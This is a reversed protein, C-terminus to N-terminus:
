HDKRKLQLKPDESQQIDTREDRQRSNATIKICSWIILKQPPKHVQSIESTVDLHMNERIRMHVSPNPRVSKTLLSRLSGSRTKLCQSSTSDKVISVLVTPWPYNLHIHQKRGQFITITHLTMEWPNCLKARWTTCVETPKKWRNGQTTQHM